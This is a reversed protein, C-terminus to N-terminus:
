AGKEDNEDFPLLKDLGKIIFFFAAMFVFVGGMGVVAVLLTSEM